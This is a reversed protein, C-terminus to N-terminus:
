EEVEEVDNEEDGLYPDIPNGENLEFKLRPSGELALGLAVDKADEVSKAEVMVDASMTAESTLRVKYKKLKM